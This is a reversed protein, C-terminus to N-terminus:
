SRPTPAEVQHGGLLSAAEDHVTQFLRRLEPSVEPLQQVVRAAWALYDLRRERSWDAAPRHGVDRANAVKDALKVLTAKPSTEPAHEVQLRKREDRPLTKDDTVEDVLDRVERGFVAEIEELTTGTDEVVDHLAAAQLTAPDRLGQSVLLWVVDILHNVYPTKLEDKRAQQRHREAAFRLAQLLSELPDNRM